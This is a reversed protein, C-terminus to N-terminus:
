SLFKVIISNFEEPNDLYIHHGANKVVEFESRFGCSHNADIHSRLKDYILEGGKFNMWDKEGYLWLTNIKHDILFEEIKRDCLPLKPLIEFNVLKTISLEGSGQFQNFISYSYNHLKLILDYNNKGYNDKLNKFRQFSWYSLIKSFVPGFVQLLQFPSLNWEWLKRLIANQPFKPKGLRGWLKLLEENEVVGESTRTQSAVLEKLPEAGLEHHNVQLAKDNILSVYNSETGMPSILIFNKVLPKKDSDPGKCYKLLYCSMLYSGMSHSMITFPASVLDPQLLRWAEFREIFWNEISIIQKIQEYHDDYTKILSKSLRPRSSNGFGPMDIVHIKIGPKSKVLTEFNKVFYGSAAMYGHVIVIPDPLSSSSSSSPPVPLLNELYFEHIIDGADNIKTDMFKGIFKHDGHDEPIPEDPRYIKIDDSLIATYLEYEKMINKLRAAKFKKSQTSPKMLSLPFNWWDKISQIWGIASVQSDSKEIVSNGVSKGNTSKDGMIEISDKILSAM